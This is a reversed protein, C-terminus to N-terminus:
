VAEMEIADMASGDPHYPHFIDHGMKAAAAFFHKGTKFTLFSAIRQKIGTDSGQDLMALTSNRDRIGCLIGKFFNEFEALESAISLVFTPSVLVTAGYAMPALPTRSFSESSQACAALLVDRNRRIRGNLAVFFNSADTL